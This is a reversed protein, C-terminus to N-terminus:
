HNSAFNDGLHVCHCAIIAATETRLRTKGLSVPQFGANIATIIEQESFDGEPGILISSTSNKQILTSLHPSEREETVYAIYKDSNHTLEFIPDISHHITITPLYAQYSQKMAAIAIKNLRDANTVRKYSEAQTHDSKFFHIENVGLEVMKEVMWENREIKRTPAIFMKIYYPQQEVTISGLVKYIVENKNFQVVECTSIVGKGDTTRFSDGIQLRMVKTCHTAEEGTLSNRHTDPQFFLHM